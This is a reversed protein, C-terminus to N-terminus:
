NYVRPEFPIMCAGVPRLYAQFDTFFRLCSFGIGLFGSNVQPSSKGFIMAKGEEVLTFQVSYYHVLM